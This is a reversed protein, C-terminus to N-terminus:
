TVTINFERTAEQGGSDRVRATFSLTGARTPTGQIRNGSLGYSDFVVYSVLAWTKSPM